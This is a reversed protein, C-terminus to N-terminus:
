IFGYISYPKIEQWHAHYEEAFGILLHDLLSRKQTLSKSLYEQCLPSFTKYYM